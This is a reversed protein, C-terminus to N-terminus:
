VRGNVRLERYRVRPTGSVLEKYKDVQAARLAYIEAKTKKDFEVPENLAIDVKEPAFGGTNLEAAGAAPRLVVFIGFFIVESVVVPV